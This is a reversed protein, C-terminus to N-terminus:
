SSTAAWAPSPTSRACVPRSARRSTSWSGTASCTALATTSTGFRDLDLFLVALPTGERRAMALAFEFRDALLRRNLLGTLADTYSLQEIRQSAALRDTIDRFSYFAGSRAGAAASSSAADRARARARLAARFVDSAQLLASGEIADWASPTSGRTPSPPSCRAACTPTTAACCCIAPRPGLAARIAPQLRRRPRRSRHRSSATPPRNSRRRCSPSLSERADEARREASSRLAVVFVSAATDLHGPVRQADGAGHRWRPAAAADGVRHRRVPRRRSRDLLVPGAADFEDRGHQARAARSGSRRAPARCRCEGRARAVRGRRGALGGRAPGRDPRGPHGAGAPRSLAHETPGGTAPREACVRGFDGWRRPSPGRSPEFFYAM